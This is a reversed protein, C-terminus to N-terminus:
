PVEVAFWVLKGDVRTSSGWRSSLIRVMSLGRGGESDLPPDLAKPVAPSGDRVKVLLERSRRELTVQFDTRAHRVANTAVESTLLVAIEEVDIM